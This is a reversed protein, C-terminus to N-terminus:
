EEAGPKKRTPAKFTGAPGSRQFGGPRGGFKGAPKGGSKAGAKDLGGAGRTKFPRKSGRESGGDAPPVWPAKTFVRQDADAARPKYPRKPITREPGGSM